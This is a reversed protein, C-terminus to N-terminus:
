LESITAAFARGAAARDEDAVKVLRAHAEIAEALGELGETALHAAFIRFTGPEGVIDLEAGSEFSVTLNVLALM